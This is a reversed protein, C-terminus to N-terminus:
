FSWTPSNPYVHIKVHKEHDIIKELSVQVVHSLWVLLGDSNRIIPIEYFDDFVFEDKFPMHNSIKTKILAMLCPNHDHIIEHFNSRFNANNVGRINWIIFSTDQDM